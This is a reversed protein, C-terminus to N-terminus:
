GRAWRRCRSRALRGCNRWGSTPLKAHPGSTSGVGNKTLMVSAPKLDRHVVGQRHAKDLADAIEAAIRLAQELPLAGKELRAALTEGEMLPM